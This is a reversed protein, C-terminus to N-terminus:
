ASLPPYPVRQQKLQEQIRGYEEKVVDAFESLFVSGRVTRQILVNRKDVTDKKRKVFGLEELVDLARCVAPKSIELMHALYKVTHPPPDLYVSFLIATQRLTLDLALEKMGRVSIRHWLNLADLSSLDSHM